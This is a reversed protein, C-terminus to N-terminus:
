GRFYHLYQKGHQQILVSDRSNQREARYPRLPRCVSRKGHHFTTLPCASCAAPVSSIKGISMDGTQTYVENDMLGETYMTNMYQLVEKWEETNKLFSVTGDVLQINEYGMNYYLGFLGSIIDPGRQIAQM